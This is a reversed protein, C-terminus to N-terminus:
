RAFLNTFMVIAPVGVIDILMSGAVPIIIFAKKSVVGFKTCVADMVVLANATAGLGHGVFGASMVAADYDKGVIKFMIFAAILVVVVTQIVLIGILPLALDYLQWLKLGMMAMTLFIELSVTSIIDISKFELKVIPARDNIGRFILALFLSFVHGPVTFGTADTIWKATLTGVVIITLIVTAMGILSKSTIKEDAGVSVGDFNEQIREWGDGNSEIKLNNKKVLWNGVPGGILSGAVLGYTAAAMGITFAGVGGAEEIMPTMAAAMGHGGELAPAGSAIGLLPDIGFLIGLSAGLINQIFALSWCLILYGLLVKGGKKILGLSTGLGITVFFMYMFPNSLSMDLEITMLNLEKLILVIISFGFGGIVPSPICYRKLFDAKNIIFRGLLLLLLALATTTVLDLKLLLIEGTTDFQM